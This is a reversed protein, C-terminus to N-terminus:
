QGAGSEPRPITEGKKSPVNGCAIPDWPSGEPSHTSRQLPFPLSPVPDRHHGLPLPHSPDMGARDELDAVAGESSDGESGDLCTTAPAVQAGASM